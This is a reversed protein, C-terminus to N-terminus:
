FPPFSPAFRCGRSETARNRIPLRPIGVKANTGGRNRSYFPAPSTHVSPASFPPPAPNRCVRRVIQLSQARSQEIKKQMAAV